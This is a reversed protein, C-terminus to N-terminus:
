RNIEKEREIEIRDILGRKGKGEREKGLASLKLIDAM